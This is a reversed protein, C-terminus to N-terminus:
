LKVGREKPASSGKSKVAAVGTSGEEEEEEAAAARDALAAARAQAAHAARICELLPPVAAVLPVLGAARGLVKSAPASPWTGAPLVVLQAGGTLAHLPCWEAAAAAAAAAAAPGEGGGGDEWEEGDMGAAAEPAPSGSAVRGAAAVMAAPCPAVLLPLQLAPHAGAVAGAAILQEHCGSLELELVRTRPPGRRYKFLPPKAGHRARNAAGRQKEPAEM